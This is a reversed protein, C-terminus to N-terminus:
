SPSDASSPATVVVGPAPYLRGDALRYAAYIGYHVFETDGAKPDISHELSSAIREGDRANQPPAGVKRIVRVETTQPSPTWTLIVEGGKLRVRVNKVDPLFPFPALTVATLSDVENRRALVAYGVVEGAVPPVDELEAESVEAIRVGDGPHALPGGQKRVVVYTVPGLGDPAPPTWRLRVRDGLVDAQLLTPPDPPTRKLGAIAEPLDTAISLSKRYLDRAAAPDERELKRARATLAEAEKLREQTERWATQVDPSNAVVLKKWDEIASLAAVLKEGARAREYEAQARAIEAKKEEVRTIGNRAGVHNPAYEQVKKLEQLALDTDNIRFAHQAAAFHRILPERNEARFGCDCRRRDVRHTKRCVPCEWELSTGCHRCVPTASPQGANNGKRADQPVETLGSCEPCRVYKPPGSPTEAPRIPAAMPSLDGGVARIIGSDGVKPQTVTRAAVFAQPTSIDLQRCKRAILTEARDRAIGMAAAEGVLVNQTAQDIESRRKAAFEILGEFTEETELELTHDYRARSKSNGLHSQAHSIVELWATKEATVQAKNMWRSREADARDVIESEPADRRVGLADYLDRRHLLDLAIRIQRRTAPELTEAPAATEHDDPRHYVSEEELNPIQRILPALIDSELGLRGAEDALLRRDVASLVGRASRLRVRRELEDLKEQRDAWKASSLEADYSERATSDGLLAKRLAPIEDLYLQNTHRTKPNRTGLSWIPQMRRLAAEIEQRDSNPEVGLRAYYDPVM